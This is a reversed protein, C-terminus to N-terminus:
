EESRHSFQLPQDSDLQLMTGKASAFTGTCKKKGLSSRLLRKSSELSKLHGAADDLESLAPARHSSSCSLETCIFPLDQGSQDIGQIHGVRHTPDRSTTRIVAASGAYM